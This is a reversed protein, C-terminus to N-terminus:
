TKSFGLFGLFGIIELFGLFEHFGLLGLFNGQIESSTRIVCLLHVRSTFAAEGSTHLRRGAFISDSLSGARAGIFIKIM